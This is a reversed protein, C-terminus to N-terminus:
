FSGNLDGSIGAVIVETFGCGTLNRRYFPSLKMLDDSQNTYIGVPCGILYWTRSVYWSTFAM